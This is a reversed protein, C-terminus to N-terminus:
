KEQILEEIRGKVEEKKLFLGDSKRYYYNHNFHRERLKGMITYYVKITKVKKGNLVITEEGDNRARMPLRSIKDRRISWLKMEKQDSLAFKGLSYKPYIHVEKGEVSINKKIPRGKFMGTVVLVNGQREVSYDTGQELCIRRWKLLDYNDDLIFKDDMLCAKTQKQRSVITQQDASDEYTVLTEAIVDRDGEQKFSNYVLSKKSAAYLNSVFIVAILFVGM